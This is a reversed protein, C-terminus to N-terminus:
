LGMGAGQLRPLEHGSGGTEPAIALVDITKFVPGAAPSGNTSSPPQVYAPFRANVTRMGIGANNVLLDVGGFRDVVADVAEAVSHEDRVDSAL